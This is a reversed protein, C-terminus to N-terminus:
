KYPALVRAAERVPARRFIRLIRQSLLLNKANKSAVIKSSAFDPADSGPSQGAPFITSGCGSGAISRSWATTSAQRSDDFRFHHAVVQQTLVDYTDLGIYGPSTKWVVAQQGPPLKRLDPM